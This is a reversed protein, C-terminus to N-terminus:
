IPDLIADRHPSLRDIIFSSVYRQRGARDRVPHTAMREGSCLEPRAHRM